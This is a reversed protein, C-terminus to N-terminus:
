VRVVEALCCAIPVATCVCSSAKLLTWVVRYSLKDKQGNTQQDPLANKIAHCSHTFVTPYPFCSGFSEKNERPEKNGLERVREEDIGFDM